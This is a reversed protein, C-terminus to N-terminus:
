RNGIRRKGQPEHAKVSSRWNGLDAAIMRMNERLSWGAGAVSYDKVIILTDTKFSQLLISTGNWQQGVGPFVIYQYLM